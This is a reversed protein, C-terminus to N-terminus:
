GPKINPHQTIEYLREALAISNGQISDPDEFINQIMPSIPHEDNEDSTHFSFQELNRFGSLFYSILLSTLLGGEIALPQDSLKLKGDNNKNGVGHVTMANITAQSIDIM